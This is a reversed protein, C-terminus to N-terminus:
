SRGNAELLNHGHTHGALLTPSDDWRRCRRIGKPNDPLPVHVLHAVHAPFCGTVETSLTVPLFAEHSHGLLGASLEGRQPCTTRTYSWGPTDVKPWLVSELLQTLHLSRRPCKLQPRMAATLVASARGSNRVTHSQRLKRRRLRRLFSAEGLVRIDSLQLKMIWVRGVDACVHVEEPQVQAVQTIHFVHRAGTGGAQAAKTSSAYELSVALALTNKWALSRVSFM